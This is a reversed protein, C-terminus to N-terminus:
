LVSIPHFGTQRRLEKLLLLLRSKEEEGGQTKIDSLATEVDRLLDDPTFLHLFPRIEEFEEKAEELDNGEVEEYIESIRSNMALASSIVFGIVVLAIIISIVFGKMKQSGEM